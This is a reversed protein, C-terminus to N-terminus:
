GFVRPMYAADKAKVTENNRAIIEAYLQPIQVEKEAKSSDEQVGQPTSFVHKYNESLQQYDSFLKDEAEQSLDGNKILESFSQKTSSPLNLAELKNLKEAIGREKEKDIVESFQQKMLSFEKALNSFEEVLADYQHKPVTSTSSIPQEGNPASFKQEEVPASAQVSEQVPTSPTTVSDTMPISETQHHLDFTFITPTTYDSFKQEVVEVTHDRLPLFPRNTLATGILLTGIREGTEKDKANRLVEASAYRYRKQEVSAYLEEDTPTFLGYLVGDEQYIKDPWGAAPEGEMVGNNGTPHGLFLPPEYGARANSWNTVIDDFDKQDFSVKGYVAHDWEGQIAIPVKLYKNNEVTKQTVSWKKSADNITLTSM